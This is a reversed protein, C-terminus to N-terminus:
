SEREYSEEEFTEAAPTGWIQSQISRQEPGHWGRAFALSPMPRAGAEPATANAGVLFVEQDEELLSIRNFSITNIPM